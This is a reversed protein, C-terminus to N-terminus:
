QDRLLSVEVRRNIRRNEKSSNAVLPHYKSRGQIVLRKPEIGKSALFKAVSAARAASLEWNSPFIPTCIVANDTHGSVVIQYDELPQVIEVIRELATQSGRLLTADGSNFSISEGLVFVPEKEEWRVYFDSSFNEEIEKIKEKNLNDFPEQEVPQLVPPRTPEQLDAIAEVEAPEASNEEAVSKKSIPLPPPPSPESIQPLPTPKEIAAQSQSLTNAYLLVFFVLLLTMLDALSWLFSNEETPETGHELTFKNTTGNQGTAPLHGYSRYCHDNQM